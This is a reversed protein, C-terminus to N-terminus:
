ATVLDKARGLLGTNSDILECESVKVGTREECGWPDTHLEQNQELLVSLPCECSSM